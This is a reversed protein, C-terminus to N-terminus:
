GRPEFEPFEPVSQGRKVRKRRYRAEYLTSWRAKRQPSWGRPRAKVIGHIAVTSLARLTEFGGRNLLEALRSVGGGNWKTRWRSGAYQGFVPATGFAASAFLGRRNPLAEYWGGSGESPSFGSRLVLAQATSPAQVWGSLTARTEPDLSVAPAIRPM